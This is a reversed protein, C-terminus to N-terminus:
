RVEIIAAGGVRRERTRVGGLSRDAAQDDADQSAGGAPDCGTARALQALSQVGALRSGNALRWTPFSGMDACGGTCDVRRVWRMASGFMREQAACHPCWSVAYYTAGARTLCRAFGDLDAAPAVTALVLAAVLTGLRATM